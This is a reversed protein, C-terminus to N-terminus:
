PAYGAIRRFQETSFDSFENIFRNELKKFIDNWIQLYGGNSEPDYKYRELADERVNNLDTAIEKWNIM